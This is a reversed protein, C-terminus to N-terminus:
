GLRSYRISIQRPAGSTSYYSTIQVKYTESGRKVLYVDFTPWIQNDTGTINYRYWPKAAFIGSFADSRFAQPPATGALAEDISAFPTSADLLATVSGTGSVGGNLRISWGEFRVDWTSSTSPAGTTLDFNVPGSRIDVTKTQVAGFAGGPASQLAYEFTITGANAASANELSAIRIKGLLPTTTGKRLIWSRTSTVSANSGATGTFWGSIAPSLADVVFESAAPASSASVADFGGLQNDATMAQLQATTAGQNTCVCFASVEGPGAAGGNVSVSTAFFALDWASSTRPDSVSVVTAPDGLRVYAYGQSADVTITQTEPPPPPESSSDSCAVLLVAFAAGSWRYATPRLMPSIHPARRARPEKRAGGLPAGHVGLNARRV